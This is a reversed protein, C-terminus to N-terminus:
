YLCAVYMTGAEITNPLAAIWEKDSGDGPTAQGKAMAKKYFKLSLKKFRLLSCDGKKYSKASLIKNLPKHYDTMESWYHYGDSKKISDIDIYWSASKVKGVLTWEAM